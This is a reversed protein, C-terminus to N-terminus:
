GQRGPGARLARAAVVERQSKLLPEAEPSRDCSNLTAGTKKKLFRIEDGLVRPVPCGDIVDFEIKKAM